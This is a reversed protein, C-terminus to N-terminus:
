VIAVGQPSQSQKAIFVQMADTLVSNLHQITEATSMKKNKWKVIYKISKLVFLLLTVVFILWFVVIDSPPMTSQIFTWKIDENPFTNNIRM